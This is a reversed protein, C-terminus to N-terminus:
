LIERSIKRSKENKMKKLSEAHVVKKLIKKRAINKQDSAKITCVWYMDLINNFLIVTVICILM